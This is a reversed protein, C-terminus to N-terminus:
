GLLSGDMGFLKRLAVKRLTVVWLFKKGLGCGLWVCGLHLSHVMTSEYTLSRRCRTHTHTHTNLRAFCSKENLSSLKISCSKLLAELAHSFLLSVKFVFCFPLRPFLSSCWVVVVVYSVVWSSLRRCPLSVLSVCV